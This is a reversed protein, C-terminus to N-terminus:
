VRGQCSTFQFIQFEILLLSETPRRKITVLFEVFYLFIGYLIKIKGSYCERKVKLEEKIINKEKVEELLAQM